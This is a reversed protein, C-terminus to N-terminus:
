SRLNQHLYSYSNIKKVIENVINKYNREKSTSFTKHNLISDLKEKQYKILKNYKKKLNSITKLVTPKIEDEM